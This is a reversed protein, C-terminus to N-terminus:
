LFNARQERRRALGYSGIGVRNDLGGALYRQLPGFATRTWKRLKFDAVKDREIRVVTPGFCSHVDDGGEFGQEDNSVTCMTYFKSCDSELWRSRGWTASDSRRCSSVATVWPRTLLGDDDDRVVDLVTIWGCPVSLM